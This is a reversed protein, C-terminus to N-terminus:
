VIIFYRIKDFIKDDYVSISLQDLGSHILYDYVTQDLFDANTTLSQYCHPLHKKTFALIKFIRNELLPENIRFWSVRGRYDLDRLNFVIKTITSWPM